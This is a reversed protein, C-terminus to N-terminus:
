PACVGPCMGGRRMSVGAQGRPEASTASSTRGQHVDQWLPLRIKAACEEPERAQLKRWWRWISGAGGDHAVLRTDARLGHQKSESQQEPHPRVACIAFGFGYTEGGHSLKRGLLSRLRSTTAIAWVVPRALIARPRTPTRSCGPKLHGRPPTPQPAHPVSKMRSAPSEPAPM